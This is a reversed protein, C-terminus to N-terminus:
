GEQNSDLDKEIGEIINELLNRYKTLIKYDEKKDGEGGKSDFDIVQRLHLNHKKTIFQSIGSLYRGAHGISTGIKEEFFKEKIEERDFARDELLLTKFFTVLRPTLESNRTLSENLKKRLEVEDFDGKELSFTSRISRKFEKQKIEKKVIYDKAEPLPIIIEPSVYLQQNEDLYPSIRVCEIDIKYDRLWLVSSIVDSHFEKSVLIIRQSENLKTSETEDVFEEIISQADDEDCNKYEAYIKYVEEPLLNACVATYRIGQWDVNAGSDDRKLEIIVLNAQKDIALLDLRNGSPIQFEKQIILLDEGLIEPSKEIWEQIDYREKLKLESYSTATMKILKKEKIDVKYMYDRERLNQLLINVPYSHYYIYELVIKLDIEVVAKFAIRGYM